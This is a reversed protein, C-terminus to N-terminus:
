VTDYAADEPSNWDEAFSPMSAASIEDITPDDDDDLLLDWAGQYESLLERKPRGYKRAGSDLDLDFIAKGSGVSVSSYESFVVSPIVWVEKPRTALTVGVVFFGPRSVLDSVQFWRPTKPTNITTVQLEIFRGDRRRVVAGIREAHVVPVYVSAGHKLLERVVLFEGQKHANLVTM